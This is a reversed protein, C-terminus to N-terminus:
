LGEEAVVVVEYENGADGNVDVEGMRRRRTTTWRAKDARHRWKVWRVKLRRVRLRSM